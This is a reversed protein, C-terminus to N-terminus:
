LSLAVEAMAWTTVHRSQVLGVEPVALAYDTETLAPKDWGTSAFSTATVGTGTGLFNRLVAARPHIRSADGVGSLLTLAISAHRPKNTQRLYTAPLDNRREILGLMMSAVQDELTIKKGSQKHLRIPELKSFATLTTSSDKVLQSAAVAILLRTADIVTMEAAGRGFGSFTITNKRRRINRLVERVHQFPLGLAESVIETLEGSTAM